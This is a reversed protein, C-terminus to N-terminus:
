CAHRSLTIKRDAGSRSRQRILPFLLITTFVNRAIAAANPMDTDPADASQGACEFTCADTSVCVFVALTSLASVDVDASILFSTGGFVSYRWSFGTQWTGM